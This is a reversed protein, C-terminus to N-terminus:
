HVVGQRRLYTRLKKIRIEGLISIITVIAIENSHYYFHILFM